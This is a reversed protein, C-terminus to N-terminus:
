KRTATETGTQAKSGYVAWKGDLTGDAKQRYGIVGMWSGNGGSYAVSLTDNVVVGVGSYQVNAVSWHV